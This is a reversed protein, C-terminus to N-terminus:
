ASCISELYTITAITDLLTPFGDCIFNTLSPFRQQVGGGNLQPVKTPKIHVKTPSPGGQGINPCYGM